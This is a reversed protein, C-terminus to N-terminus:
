LYKLNNTKQSELWKNICTKLRNRIPIDCIDGCVVNSCNFNLKHTNLAKQDIDIAYELEFPNAEYKKGNFEFDGIIGLDAGGCGSFLSVVKYM